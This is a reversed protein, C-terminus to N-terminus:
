PANRMGASLNALEPLFPAITHQLNIQQRVTRLRATAAPDTTLRVEVIHPFSAHIQEAVKRHIRGDQSAIGVLVVNGLVVAEVSGAGPVASAITSVGMSPDDYASGARPTPYAKSGRGKPGAELSSGTTIPPPSGPQRQEPRRAPTCGAAVALLLVAHIIIHALRVPRM